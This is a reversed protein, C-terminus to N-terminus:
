PAQQVRRERGSLLQLVALVREGARTSRRWRARLAHGSRAGGAALMCSASHGYSYSVWLRWVAGQARGKRSLARAASGACRHPKDGEAPDPKPAGRCTGEWQVAGRSGLTKRYTSGFGGAPHARM